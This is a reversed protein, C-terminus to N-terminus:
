VVTKDPFVNDVPTGPINNDYGDNDDLFDYYDPPIPQYYFDGFLLEYPSGKTNFNDYREIM